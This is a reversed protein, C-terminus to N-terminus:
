NDSKSRPEDLDLVIMEEMEERQVQKFTKNILLLLFSMPVLGIFNDLIKISEPIFAYLIRFAIILLHAAALLRFYVGLKTNKIKFLIFIFTYAMVGSILYLKMLYPEAYETLTIFGFFFNWLLWIWFYWVMWLPQRIYDAIIILVSLSALYLITLFILVYKRQEDYAATPMMIFFVNICSALLYVSVIYIFIRYTRSSFPDIFSPIM